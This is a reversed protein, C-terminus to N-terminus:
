GRKENFRNWKDSIWNMIFSEVKVDKKSVTTEPSLDNECEENEEEQLTVTGCLEPFFTCWWNQGEGKGITVVLTLYTQGDPFTHPEFATTVTQEPTILQAEKDVLQQIESLNAKLKDTLEKRTLPEHGLLQILAPQIEKFLEEKDSQDSVTDSNAIVRMRIDSDAASASPTFLTLLIVLIMTKQIM